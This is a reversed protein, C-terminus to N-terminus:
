ERDGDTDEDADAIAADEIETLTTEHEPVGALIDAKQTLEDVSIETPDDESVEVGEGDDTVEVEVEPIAVLLGDSHKARGKGWMCGEASCARWTTGDSFTFSKERHTTCPVRPAVAPEPKPHIVPQAAPREVRNFVSAVIEYEQMSTLGGNQAAVRVHRQVRACDEITFRPNGM